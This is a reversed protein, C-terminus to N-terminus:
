KSAPGKIKQVAGAIHEGVNGGILWAVTTTIGTILALAIKEYTGVKAAEATVDAFYIGVLVALLGLAMILIAYTGLAMKRQGAEASGIIAQLLKQIM